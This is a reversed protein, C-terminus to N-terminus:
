KGLLHEKTPFYYTLNGTGIDLAEAIQKTSAATYGQELFLSTAYRIIDIRTTKIRQRAM